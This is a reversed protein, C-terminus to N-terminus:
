MTGILFTTCCASSRAIPSCTVTRRVMVTQVMSTSMRGASFDPAQEACMRPRGDLRRRVEVMSSGPVFGLTRNTALIHDNGLLLAHRTERREGDGADAM